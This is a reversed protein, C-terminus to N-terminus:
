HSHVSPMGWTPLPDPYGRWADSGQALEGDTLLASGLLGHVAPVDLRVGILVVEQSPGLATAGDEAEWYQAPEIVLNPGAQSWVALFEPRSAIWCFGKSRLVGRLDALVQALRTPHFPRDSRFVTSSIGYEETEPVHGGLLEDDWGAVASAAEHDFLGTGIVRELPVAGRDGVVVDARPNLRRVMAEVAGRVQDTVLDAKGLVVVDAFEVQDVLLDSISRYDGGEAEMKREDLRDGAALEPLFTACDM